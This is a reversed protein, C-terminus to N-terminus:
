VFNRSSRKMYSEAEKVLESITPPFKAKTLIGLSPDSLRRLVDPPFRELAEAANRLFTTPDTLNNLNFSYMIKKVCEESTM